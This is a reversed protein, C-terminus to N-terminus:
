EVKHIILSKDERTKASEKEIRESFEKPTIDGGLLAAMANEAEKGMAKYWERFNAHWKTKSADFIRAAEVLHSPYKVGEGVKVAMLTGKKEVFEKAKEPTTMFKFIEIGAKQDKAKAPIVFPEIGVQLATPDGKGGALVPVSMFEPTPVKGKMEKTYNEMEAVLWSGCPIMAAKGEYFAAQSDTHSLGLSGELFDKRKVLEVVKEAAAIVSPSTWAGPELNQCANWAEIGGHSIILPYIFGSLMYYPYQGQYTLPAIGKAKIKDNLVILEDWTKPVTWGNAEFLTKNYWWGNINVHFPLMYSKGEHIGMKLLGPDFSDRWKGETQGYAPGDLAEDWPSLQEDYVLAWYDMGWGPWTLDPVDGAVFRPRLKEWIRPDGTVKVERKAEKGWEAASSEFFDIGYGGQFSAVEVVHSSDSTGGSSASGGETGGAPKCGALILGAAVSALLLMRGVGKNM